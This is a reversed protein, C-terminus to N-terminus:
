ELDFTVNFWGMKQPEYLELESGRWKQIEFGDGTEKDMGDIIQNKFMDPDGEYFNKPHHLSDEDPIEGINEVGTIKLDGSEVVYGSKPSGDAPKGESVYRIRVLDEHRPSEEDTFGIFQKVNGYRDNDYHISSKIDPKFTEVEQEYDFRWQDKHPQNQIYWERSSESDYFRRLEVYEGNEFETSDNQSNGTTNENSM